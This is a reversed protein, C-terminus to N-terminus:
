HKHFSSGRITQMRKESHPKLHRSIGIGTGTSGSWRTARIIVDGSFSVYNPFQDGLSHIEDFANECDELTDDTPDIYQYVCAITGPPADEVFVKMSYENSIKKPRGTRPDIDFEAVLRPSRKIILQAPDVGPRTQTKPTLHEPSKLAINACGAQFAKQVTSTFGLAAYFGAAFAIAAEDSNIIELGHRCCL